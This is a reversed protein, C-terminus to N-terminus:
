GSTPQVTACVAMWIKWESPANGLHQYSASLTSVVIPNVIDLFVKSVTELSSVLFDGPQTHIRITMTTCPGDQAVNSDEPGVSPDRPLTGSSGLCVENATPPSMRVSKAHLQLRQWIEMQIRNLRTVESDSGDRPSSWLLVPFSHVAGDKKGVASRRAISWVLSHHGIHSRQGLCPTRAVCSSITM